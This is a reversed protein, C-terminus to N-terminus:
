ELDSIHQRKREQARVTKSANVTTTGTTESRRRFGSIRRIQGMDGANACDYPPREEEDEREIERPMADAM